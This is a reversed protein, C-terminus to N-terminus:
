CREFEVMSIVNVHILLAMGIIILVPTVALKMALLVENGLRSALAM